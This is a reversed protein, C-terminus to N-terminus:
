LEKSVVWIDHFIDIRVAPFFFNLEDAAEEATSSGHLGNMVDDTTFTARMSEPATEKAEPVM